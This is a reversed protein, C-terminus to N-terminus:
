QMRVTTFGRFFRSWESLYCKTGFYPLVSGTRELNATTQISKMYSLTTRFIFFVHLFTSGDLEGFDELRLREWTHFLKM